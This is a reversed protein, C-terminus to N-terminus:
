NESTTAIVILWHCHKADEPRVHDKARQQVEGTWGGPWFSLQLRVNPTLSQYYKKKFKKKGTQQITKWEDILFILLWHSNLVASCTFPWKNKGYKRAASTSPLVVPFKRYKTLIRDMSLTNSMWNMLCWKFWWAPQCPVWDSISFFFFFTMGLTGRWLDKASISQPLGRVIWNWVWVGM